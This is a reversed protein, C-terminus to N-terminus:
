QWAPAYDRIAAELQAVATELVDNHIALMFEGRRALERRATALRREIAEATETGRAELRRRYEEETTWLFVSLHDGPYLDRVQAAGQVDIILVVGRGQERVPEVEDRPTGYFDREHVVAHELMEGRDLRERFYDRTWFHYHVGDVEGTRPARTTATVARKLPLDTTALLREVVTTKGSGSPGSLVVLPGRAV